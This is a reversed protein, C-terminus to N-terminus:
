QQASQKLAKTFSDLVAARKEEPIQQLIHSTANGLIMLSFDITADQSQLVDLVDNLAKEIQSNSYKSVQPM